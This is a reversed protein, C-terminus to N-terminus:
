PTSLRRMPDHDAHHMNSGLPTNPTTRHWMSSASQATARLRDGSRSEIAAPRDWVNLIALRQREGDVEAGGMVLPEVLLARARDAMVGFSRDGAGAVRAHVIVPRNCRALTIDLCTMVVGIRDGSAREIVRM